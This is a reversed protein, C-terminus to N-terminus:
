ASTVDATPVDTAGGGGVFVDDQVFRQKTLGDFAWGGGSAIRDLVLVWVAFGTGGDFTVPFTGFSDTPGPYTGVVDYGALDTPTFWRGDPSGAVITYDAEPVRYLTAGESSGFVGTDGGLVATSGSGGVLDIGDQSLWIMYERILATNNSSSGSWSTETGMSPIGSTVGGTSACAASTRTIATASAGSTTAHEVVSVGCAVRVPPPEPPIAGAAGTDNQQVTVTRIRPVRYVGPVGAPVAAGRRASAALRAMPNSRPRAGPM